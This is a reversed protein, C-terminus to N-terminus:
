FSMFLNTEWMRSPKDDCGWYNALWNLDLFFSVPKTKRNFIKQSHICKIWNIHIYIYCVCFLMCSDYSRHGTERVMSKWQLLHPSNRTSCEFGKALRHLPYRYRCIYVNFIWTSTLVVSHLQDIQLSKNRCRAWGYLSPSRRIIGCLGPTVLLWVQPLSPWM